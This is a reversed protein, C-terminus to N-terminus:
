KNLTTFPIKTVQSQGKKNGTFYSIARKKKHIMIEMAATFRSKGFHERKNETFRSITINYKKHITFPSNIKQSIHDIGGM